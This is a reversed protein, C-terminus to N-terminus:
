RGDRNGKKKEQKAFFKEDTTGIFMPVNQVDGFLEKMRKVYKAQQEIRFQSM